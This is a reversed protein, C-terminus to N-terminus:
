NSSSASFDPKNGQLHYYLLLGIPLPLWFTFFRFLLTLTLASALPLGLLHFFYTMASEYAILSGPTTPVSGIVVTLLFAFSLLEYSMTAGLGRVLAYVTLTDLLLISIQLIVGYIAQKQFLAQGDHLLAPDLKDIRKRIWAFRSLKHTLWALLRQRSATIILAGLLSFFVFGTLVTYNVSPKQFGYLLYYVGLLFLFAIYYCLTELILTKFAKAPEVKRKVLENFVYGNGSIGGSPLLQNVFIFVISIKFLSGFGATGTKGKLLATIIWANFAYTMAQTALALLLWTPSMGLLLDKIRSLESFQRIAFYFLVLCLGFFILRSRM